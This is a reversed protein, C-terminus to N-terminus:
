FGEGGLLRHCVGMGRPVPEQRAGAFLAIDRLVEGGHGGVGLGDPCESDVGRVHEFEPVPHAPAVRKPGGDPQGNRKEDPHVVEFGEQAASVRSVLVEAASRERLVNGHEHRQQADPVVVEKARLGVGDQGIFLVQFVERCVELLAVHFAVAFADAAGTLKQAVGGTGDDPPLRAGVPLVGEELKDMLAGLKDRTIEQRAHFGLVREAAVM